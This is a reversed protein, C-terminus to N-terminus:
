AHSHSPFREHERSSIYRSDHRPMARVWSTAHGDDIDFCRHQRRPPPPLEQPATRTAHALAASPMGRAPASASFSAAACFLHCSPGIGYRSFAGATHGIGARRPWSPRIFHSSLITLVPKLFRAVDHLSFYLPSPGHRRGLFFGHCPANRFDQRRM